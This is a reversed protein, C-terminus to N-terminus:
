ARIVVSMSLTRDKWRSSRPSSFSCRSVVEISLTTADPTSAATSSIPGPRAWYATCAGGISAVTSASRIDWASDWRIASTAPTSAAPLMGTTTPPTSEVITTAAACRPSETRMSTRPGCAPSLGTCTGTARPMTSFCPPTSWVCSTGPWPLAYTISTGTPLPPAFVATLSGRRSDSVVTMGTGASGTRPVPRAARGCAGDGDGDGAAAGAGNATGAGGAGCCATGIAAAAGTGPAASASGAAGVM